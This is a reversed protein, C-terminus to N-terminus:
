GTIVDLKSAIGRGLAINAGRVNVIIPGYIDNKIMKIRSGITIGLDSLRARVCRGGDIRNLKVQQYTKIKTLAM